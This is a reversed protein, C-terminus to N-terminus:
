VVGEYFSIENKISEIEKNEIYDEVGDCNAKKNCILDNKDNITRCLLDLSENLTTGEENQNFTAYDIKSIESRIRIGEKTPSEQSGKQMDEKFRWAEKFITLINRAGKKIDKDKLLYDMNNLLTEKARKFADSSKEDIQQISTNSFNIKSDNTTIPKTFGKCKINIKGNEIEYEMIYDLIKTLEINKLTVEDISSRVNIVKSETELLNEKKRELLKNINETYDDFLVSCVDLNKLGKKHSHLKVKYFSKKLMNNTQNTKNEYTEGCKVADKKVEDFYLPKTKKYKKGNIYYNIKNKLIKM